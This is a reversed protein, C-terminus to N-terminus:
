KLSAPLSLLCNGKRSELIEPLDLCAKEVKEEIKEFELDQVGQFNSRVVSTTGESKHFRKHLSLLSAQRFSKNCTVCYFPEFGIHVFYHERLIQKSSFLKQCISCQFKKLKLHVCEVHRQLNYKSLYENGCGLYMCCYLNLGSEPFKTMQSM